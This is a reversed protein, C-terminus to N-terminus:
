AALRGRIPVDLGRLFGELEDISHVTYTIGGSLTIATHTKRQRPTLYKGPPKVEIGVFRGPPHTWGIELQHHICFILDPTGAKMGLARSVGAVAKSKAPVPNVATWWPGEPPPPVCLELWEVMSRQLVDELRTM